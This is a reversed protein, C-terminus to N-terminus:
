SFAGTPQLELGLIAVAPVETPLLDAPVWIEASGQRLQAREDGWRVETGDAVFAGDRDIAADIRLVADAGIQEVRADFSAIASAFDITIENSEVGQIELRGTLMGPQQPAVIEVRVVGNQVTGPVAGRGSPGDFIFQAITGDALVNDFVDRLETTEVEVLSRGDAMGQEDEAALEVTTVVGPVEDIRVAAASVLQGDAATASARVTTAGARQGSQLQQWAMGDSTEIDATTSNSGPEVGGPQDWEVSVETGDAVQNGYRDVPFVVALTVDQGDAVITRPGVLPAVIEHVDNPRILLESRVEGSVISILGAQQTVAPPLDLRGVGNAVPVTFSLRGFGNVVEVLTTGSESSAALEISVIEGAVAETSHTIFDLAVYESGDESAPWMFIFAAVVVVMSAAVGITWWTRNRKNPAM